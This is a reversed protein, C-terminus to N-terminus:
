SCSKLGTNGRQLRDARRHAFGLPSFPFAREKDPRWLLGAVAETHLFWLGDRWGGGRMVFRLVAPVTDSGIKRPVACPPAAAADPTSYDFPLRDYHSNFYDFPDHSWIWSCHPLALTWSYAAATMAQAAPPAPVVTPPPEKRVPMDAAVAAGASALLAFILVYYKM